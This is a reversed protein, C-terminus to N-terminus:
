YSFVDDRAVRIAGGIDCPLQFEMRQHVLCATSPESIEGVRQTQYNIGNNVPNKVHHKVLQHNWGMQFINTLNSWRGLYPHFYFINSVM